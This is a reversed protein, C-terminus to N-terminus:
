PTPLTQLLYFEQSHGSPPNTFSLTGDINYAQTSVATWSTLNTSVLVAYQGATTGNNNTGSIVVGDPTLAISSIKPSILIVPPTGVEINSQLDYYVGYNNTLVTGATQFQSM